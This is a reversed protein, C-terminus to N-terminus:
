ISRRVQIEMNGSMEHNGSRVLVIVLMMMGSGHKKIDLQAKQGDVVKTQLM